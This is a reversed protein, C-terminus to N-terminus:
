SEDPILTTTEGLAPVSIGCLNEHLATTLITQDLNFYFNCSLKGYFEGTNFKL